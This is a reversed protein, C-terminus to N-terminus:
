EVSVEFEVSGVYDGVYKLTSRDIRFTIDKEGAQAFVAVTNGSTVVNGDANLVEFTLKHSSNDTATIEFKGNEGNGAVKVILNEGGTVMYAVKIKGTVTVYKDNLDNSYTLSGFDVTQPVSLSYTGVVNAKVATSYAKDTTNTEGGVTLEKSSINYPSTINEGALDIEDGGYDYIVATNQTEDTMAAAGGFTLSVGSAYIKSGNEICFISAASTIQVNELYIKASNAASIFANATTESIIKGNKFTLTANDVAIGINQPVTLTHSNLDIVINKNLDVTFPKVISVPSGVTMDSGLAIQLASTDATSVKSYLEEFTSVSVANASTFHVCCVTFILSIAVFFSVIKLFKKM